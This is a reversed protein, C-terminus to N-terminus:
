VESIKFFPHYIGLGSMHQLNAYSVDKVGQQPFPM